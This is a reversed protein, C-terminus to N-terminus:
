QTLSDFPNRSAIFPNEYQTKAEFPNKYETQVTITSNSSVPITYTTTKVSNQSITVSKKKIPFSIILFAAVGGAIVIGFSALLNKLVKRDVEMEQTLIRPQEEPAIQKEIEEIEKAQKPSIDM